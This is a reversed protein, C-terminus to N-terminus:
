KSNYKWVRIAMAKSLYQKTYLAARRFKALENDHNRQEVTRNARDRRAFRSAIEKEAIQLWAEREVKQSRAKVTRAAMKLQHATRPMDAVRMLENTVSDFVRRHGKYKKELASIEDLALDEKNGIYDYARMTDRCHRANRRADHVTYQKYSRAVLGLLTEWKGALLFILALFLLLCSGDLEKRLGGKMFMWKREVHAFDSHYKIGFLCEYLAKRWIETVHARESATRKAFDSHTQLAEVLQPQFMGSTDVGREELVVRLGKEGINQFGPKTGHEEFAVRCPTCTNGAAEKQLCTPCLDQIPVRPFVPIKRRGVTKTRQEKPIFTHRIHRATQGGSNVLMNEADTGDPSMAAHNQSWDPVLVPQFRPHRRTFLHRMIAIALHCQKWFQEALWWGDHNKGPRMWVDATQPLEVETGKVYVDYWQDM